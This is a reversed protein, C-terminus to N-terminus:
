GRWEMCLVALENIEQMAKMAAEFLKITFKGFLDAEARSSDILRFETDTLAAGQRIIALHTELDLIQEMATKTHEFSYRYQV